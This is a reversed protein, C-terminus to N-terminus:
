HLEPLFVATAGGDPLPTIRLGRVGLGATRLYLGRKSLIPDRRLGLVWSSWMKGKWLSGQLMPSRFGWVPSGLENTRRHM